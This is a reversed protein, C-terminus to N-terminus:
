KEGSVKEQQTGHPKGLLHCCLPESLPRPPTTPDERLQTQPIGDRDRHWVSQHREARQLIIILYNFCRHVHSCYLFAQLIVVVPISLFTDLVKVRHKCVTVDVILYSSSRQTKLPSRSNKSNTARRFALNHSHAKSSVLRVHPSPPAASLLAQLPTRGLEAEMASCFIGRWVASLDQFGSQLCNHFWRPHLSPIHFTLSHQM